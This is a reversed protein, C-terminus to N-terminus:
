PEELLRAAIGFQVRQRRDPMVFRPADDNGRKVAAMVVAM